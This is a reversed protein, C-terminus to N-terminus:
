ITPRTSKQFRCAVFDGHNPVYDYFIGGAPDLATLRVWENDYFHRLVSHRGIIQRILERPACIVTLLRMPEHYPRPGNMVTQWALGTRLDSQPGSLIGFRGVVNHDIKSGSGYVETDVTSFYHEMNMWQAVVQPGTMITELLQGTADERYDYSHLFTRGGLDVGKTIARHGIIFAANGSAGWEPRVQSWDGSRRRTERVAKEKSLATTMEPFRRCREQSNRRGAEKLDRRLHLLDNLHTHPIDELDFFDVEDTTTNHEGAIFYTDDPIVLGNKALAERVRPKNAITSLVRANPKGTNGGCAGCDLAAEFPNNDSMSAHGCLLVRRAFNGTLGMMRLATEVAVAQEEPTFGIRTIREM